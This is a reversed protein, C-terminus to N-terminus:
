ARIPPPDDSDVSSQSDPTAQPQEKRKAALIEEFTQICHKLRGEFDDPDEGVIMAYEWFVAPMLMWREEFENLEGDLYWGGDAIGEIQFLLDSAAKLAPRENFLRRLEKESPCAKVEM